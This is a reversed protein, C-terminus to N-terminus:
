EAFLNRTYLLSTKLKDGDAGGDAAVPSELTVTGSYGVENLQRVVSQFDVMGEGPHYIPRLTSFDKEAGRIDGIHIHEIRPYIDEAQWINEIQRHFFGFRTDFILGCKDLHMSMSKWNSLPDQTTCPVNEILLRIGYPRIIEMLQPLVSINYAVHGDSNLGGWLHFVMRRSGAMAGMECNKKFDDLAQRLLVEAADAEGTAKAVAADSLLTGVEKECHIVPFTLGEGLWEDAVAKMQPYYAPIMMFEAGDIIGQQQLQPFLQTVLHFNYGNRRSVTTGTSCYIMRKMIEGVKHM